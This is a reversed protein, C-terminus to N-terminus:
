SQQPTPPELALNLSGSPPSSTASTPVGNVFCTPLLRYTLPTKHFAGELLVRLSFPPRAPSCVDRWEGDVETLATASVLRSKAITVVGSTIVRGDGDLIAVEPRTTLACTKGSTIQFFLAIGGGTVGQTAQADAVNLSGSACWPPTPPTLTTLGPM